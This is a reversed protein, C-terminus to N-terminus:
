FTPIQKAISKLKDQCYVVLGALAPHLERSPRFGTMMNMERFCADLRSQLSIISPPEVPKRAEILQDQLRRVVQRIRTANEPVFPIIEGDVEIGEDSVAPGLARYSEPSIRAIQALKFYNVGFEELRQILKDAYSRSIGAHQECFEEWSLYLTEFSRSERIQKLSEALAALSRNAILGFAQTKGAWEGLEFPSMVGLVTQEEVIEM